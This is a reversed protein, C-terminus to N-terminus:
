ENLFDLIRQIAIAMQKQPTIKTADDGKQEGYDGFYAHNGGQVEYYRVDGPANVKSEVFRERNLVGDESGYVSLMRLETNSLDASPYSALFIIGKLKDPNKGAYVSAMAGGLSHGGIYWNSIDPYKKMVKDAAKTDFVALNFPMKVLACLYGERAVGQMLPAYSLYDVKGGPYFILGVEAESQAPQFVMMKDISQIRVHQQEQTASVALPGARYYDLTYIYFVGLVLLLFGIAAIKFWKSGRVKKKFSTGSVALADQGSLGAKSLLLVGLLFSGQSVVNVSQEIWDMGPGGASALYGMALMALFAVLFLLMAVMHKMKKAIFFLVWIVGSCGLIQGILFPLNSEYVPVAAVANFNINRGKGRGFLSLLAFFMLIFGPAQLPFLASNLYTVDAIQLGYLLKWLAKYFGGAFVMLSGAALMSFAMKSLKNYLDRQLIIAAIFFLLVPIFDMIAMGVTIESM